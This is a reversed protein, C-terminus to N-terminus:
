AIVISESDPAKREKRSRRLDPRRLIVTDEISENPVHISALCVRCLGTTGAFRDKILHRHGNPCLVSISM